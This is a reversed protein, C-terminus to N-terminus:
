HGDLLLKSLGLSLRESRQSLSGEPSSGPQRGSDGGGGGGGWRGGFVSPAAERYSGEEPSSAVERGPRWCVEPLPLLSRFM